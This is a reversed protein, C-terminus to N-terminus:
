VLFFSLSQQRRVLEHLLQLSLSLGTAKRRVERVRACRRGSWCRGNGIIGIESPSRHLRGSLRGNTLVGTGLNRYQRVSEVEVNGCQGLADGTQDTVRPKILSAPETILWSEVILRSVVSPRREVGLRTVVTLGPVVTLRSVVTLNSVVRLRAVILGCITRWGGIELDRVILVSPVTSLGPIARRVITLTLTAVGWITLIWGVPLYACMWLFSKRSPKIALTTNRKNYFIYRLRQAHAIEVLLGLDGFISSLLANSFRSTPRDTSQRHVILYSSIYVSLMIIRSAARSLVQFAVDDVNDVALVRSSESM